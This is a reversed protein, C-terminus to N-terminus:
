HTVAHDNNEAESDEFFLLHQEAMAELLVPSAFRDGYISQLYTLNAHVIHEGITDVVHLPGGRHPAFGTGLVMALDIAWAQDVIKEQKCRISEALMPYILRRQELSLGDNVFHDQDAVPWNQRGEKKSPRPFNAVGDRRGKKYRYFGSGSKKGLMNQNVMLGLQDVVPTVGALVSALSQAVHLAIDLGVQDLLELPGMPMGFRRIAKDLRKVDHGQAVMVVAEGLYPFLVRNVLFGPADATVVPTKGLARVFGVLRAVTADSTGAARVVEVLEMKHVPNFFHLGAVQEPRATAEAMRAISLSSTNSALIATSGLCKDLTAFVTEKVKAIEVVAEIVLDADALADDHTTVQVRDLISARSKDNMKRHKALTEVLAVVRKRGAEAATEDMEKLVVDFGNCAALQGIGAGMTGAGIIGVKRIPAEHLAGIQSSWTRRDRASERAFFLQLLNRCTPTALLNVFENRETMFGDPRLGYSSRVAKVASRLAPYHAAKSGIKKETASFILSRGWPTAELWRQGWSRERGSQSVAEGELVQTVFCAVEDEWRDPDIALDILGIKAAEAASLNKGQLIMSLANALGVVRPLRQTGGWGPILGLKIEPLGIKTSSNDRAIRYDCALAWELGGGLCPGHIVAITPMALWNIRDFLQQGCDILQTAHAPSEIDAIAKVDAGALFGSEKGSRFVVAQCDGHHELHHVIADLESMVQDDFVNLPRHPVDLSVTTVGRGDTSVHFSKTQKTNM